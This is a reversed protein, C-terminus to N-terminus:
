LVSRARPAGAARGDRGGARPHVRPLPRWRHAPRRPHRRRRRSAMRHRCGHRRRRPRYARPRLLSLGPRARAPPGCQAPRHPPDPRRPRPDLPRAAGGAQRHRRLALHLLADHGGARPRSPPHPRLPLPAHPKPGD